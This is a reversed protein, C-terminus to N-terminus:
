VAAGMDVHEVPSRHDPDIPYPRNKEDAVFTMFEDSIVAKSPSQEFLLDTFMDGQKILNMTSSNHRRAQIKPSNDPSNDRSETPSFLVTPPPSPPGENSKRRSSPIREDVENHILKRTIFEQRKLQINVEHPVDPIATAVLYKALFILTSM